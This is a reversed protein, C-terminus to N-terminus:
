IVYLLWDFRLKFMFFSEAARIATESAAATGTANACALRTRSDIVSSTDNFENATNEGDTLLIAQPSRFGEGYAALVSLGDVPHVDVSIRPGAAVGHASRSAGSVSSGPNALADEVDYFLADRTAFATYMPDM